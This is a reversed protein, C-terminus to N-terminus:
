ESCFHDIMAEIEECVESHEDAPTLLRKQAVTRLGACSFNRLDGHVVRLLEQDLQCSKQALTSATDYYNDGGSLHETALQLLHLLM